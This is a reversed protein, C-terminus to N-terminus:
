YHDYPKGFEPYYSRPPVAISSPPFQYGGGYRPVGSFSQGGALTANMRRPDKSYPTQWPTRSIEQPPAFSPKHRYEFGHGHDLPSPRKEVNAFYQRHSLNENRKKGMVNGLKPPPPPTRGRLPDERKRKKEMRDESRYGIRNGGRLVPSRGRPSRSREVPVPSRTGRRKPNKKPQVKVEDIKTKLHERLKRVEALEKNVAVKDAELRNLDAKKNKEFAERDQNLRRRDARTKYQAEKLDKELSSCKKRMGEHRRQYEVIKWKYRSIEAKLKDLKKKLEAIVNDKEEEEEEGSIKIKKEHEHNEEAKSEKICELKDSRKKRSDLKVLQKSERLDPRDKSVVIRKGDFLTNNLQKICKGATEASDVSVYGFYNKGNTLIKATVVKGLGTFLKKIDTAKVHRDINSVWFYCHDDKKSKSKMLTKSDELTLDTCISTNVNTLTNDDCITQDLHEETTIILTSNHFTNNSEKEPEKENLVDFLNFKEEAEELFSDEAEERADHGTAGDAEDEIKVVLADDESKLIDEGHFADNMTDDVISLGHIDGDDANKKEAM